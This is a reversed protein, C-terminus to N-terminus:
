EKDVRDGYPTGLIRLSSKSDTHAKTLSACRFWANWCSSAARHQTNIAKGVPNNRLWNILTKRPDGNRLGDDAASACWFDIARDRNYRLTVLGVATVAGRYFLAANPRPALRLCGFFERAEEAWERMIQKRLEFDKREYHRVANDAGGQTKFDDNIWKVAVALADREKAKLSLDDGIGGMVDRLSRSRGIDFKSYESEIDEESEVKRLHVSLWIPKQVDVIARLTHQGNVLCPVGGLVAFNIGTYERFQGRRMAEALVMVHKRNFPRQGSYNFRTVYEAAVDPTIFVNVARHHDGVFSLDRSEKILDFTMFDDSHCAKM